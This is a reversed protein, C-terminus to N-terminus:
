GRVSHAPHFLSDASLITNAGISFNKFFFSCKSESASGFGCSTKSATTRAQLSHPPYGTQARAAAANRAAVSSLMDHTSSALQPGLLTSLRGFTEHTLLTLHLCQFQQQEFPLICGLHDM